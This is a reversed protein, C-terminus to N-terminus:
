DTQSRGLEKWIADWAVTTTTTKFKILTIVRPTKFWSKMITELVSTVTAFKACSRQISVPSSPNQSEQLLNLSVPLIFRLISVVEKKICVRRNIMKDQTQKEAIM